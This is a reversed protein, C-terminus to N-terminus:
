FCPIDNPMFFHFHSFPTQAKSFYASFCQNRLSLSIESYFGNPGVELFTNESVILCHSTGASEAHFTSQKPGVLELAKRFLLPLEVEEQFLYLEEAAIGVQSFLFFSINLLFGISLKPSIHYRM